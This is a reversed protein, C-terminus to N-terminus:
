EIKNASIKYAYKTGSKGSYYVGDVKKGTFALRLIGIEIENYSVDLGFYYSDGEIKFLKGHWTSVVEGSDSLFSKGSITTEFVGQTIVFEEVNFDKPNIKINENEPCPLSEGKYRGSIYQDRFILKVLFRNYIVLFYLATAAGIQVIKYISFLDYTAPSFNPSIFFGITHYGLIAVILGITLAIQLQKETAM